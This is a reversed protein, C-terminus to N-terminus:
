VFKSVMFDLYCHCFLSAIRFFPYLCCSRAQDSPSRPLVSPCLSHSSLHLTWFVNSSWWWTRCPWWSCWPSSLLSFILLSSMVLDVVLLAVIKLRRYTPFQSWSECLEPLICTETRPPQQRRSTVIQKQNWWLTGQLGRKRLKCNASFILLSGGHM